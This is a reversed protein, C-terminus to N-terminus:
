DHNGKATQLRMNLKKSGCEEESGGGVELTSDNRNEKKFNLHLSKCIKLLLNFTLKSHSDKEGMCPASLKNM